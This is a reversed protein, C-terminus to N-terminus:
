GAQCVLWLLRWQSNYVLANVPLTGLCQTLSILWLVEPLLPPFLYIWFGMWTFFLADVRWAWPELLPSVFTCLHANNTSTFMDSHSQGWLWWVQHPGFHCPGCRTSFKPTPTVLLRSHCEAQRSHTSATHPDQPHRGLASASCHSQLSAKVTDGGGPQVASCHRHHCWGYDDGAPGPSSSPLTAPSSPRGSPCPPGTVTVDHLMFEVPCMHLRRQRILTELSTM